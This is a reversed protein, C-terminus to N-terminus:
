PLPADEVARSSRTFLLLKYDALPYLWPAADLLREGARFIPAVVVRPLDRVSFVLRVPVFGMRDAQTLSLGAANACAIWEEIGLDLVRRLL